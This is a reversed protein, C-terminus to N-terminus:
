ADSGARQATADGTVLNGVPSDKAPRDPEALVVDVLNQSLSVPRHHLLLLLSRGHVPIHALPHPRSDCSIQDTTANCTSGDILYNLLQFRPNDSLDHTVVVDLRFRFVGLSM